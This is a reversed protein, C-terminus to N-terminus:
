SGCSCPSCGTLACSTPDAVMSVYSNPASDFRREGDATQRAWGRSNEWRSLRFGSACRHVATSPSHPRASPASTRTQPAALHISKSQTSPHPSPRIFPRGDHYRVFYRGSAAHFPAIAAANMLFCRGFYNLSLKQYLWHSCM